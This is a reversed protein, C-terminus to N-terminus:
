EKFSSGLNRMEKAVTGARRVLSPGFIILVILLIIGLEAIGFGFM